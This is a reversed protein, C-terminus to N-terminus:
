ASVRNSRARPRRVTQHKERWTLVDERITPPKPHNHIGRHHIETKMREHYRIIVATASCRVWVLEELHTKCKRVPPRPTANKNKGSVPLRPRECFDCQPCKYVGFCIKEAIDVREETENDMDRGKKKLNCLSRYTSRQARLLGTHQSVKVDCDKKVIARYSQLPLLAWGTSKSRFDQDSPLLEITEVVNGNPFEHSSPHAYTDITNTDTVTADTSPGQGGQALAATAHIVKLMHEGEEDTDTENSSRENVDRDHDHSQKDGGIYDDELNQFDRPEDLTDLDMDFSSSSGSSATAKSMLQDMIRVVSTTVVVLLNRPRRKINNAALREDVIKIIEQRLSKALAKGVLGLLQQEDMMSFTRTNDEVVHTMKGTSFNYVVFKVKAFDKDNMGLRAQIRTKTDSFSEGEKVVLKFPISHLRSVDGTFHFCPIVAELETREYEEVPIEEVYLNIPDHIGSIPDNTGYEKVLKGNYVSFSRLKKTGNPSLKVKPLLNEIVAEITSVKLLLLEHPFEDKLTPGLWIVKVIRKSELEVISMDLKEYFVVNPPPAGQYMYGSTIMDQLLLNTSRRIPAGNLAVASTFQIHLPDVHLQEALKAAVQDYTSKKSLEISYTKLSSNEENKPKFEVIVRNFLYEYHQPISPHLGQNQLETVEKPTLEKQFVIIDGGQIECQHFTSKMKMPEIMTPKIEEFLKVSTISPLGKMELLQPVVESVKQQKQVHLKGVGELTSTYPDYYKFFVMMTGSQTENQFWSTKGNAAKTNKSSLEVYCRMEAQTRNGYRERILEMPTNLESDPIPVDSRFTDNQRKVLTWIRLQDEPYGYSKAIVSRFTALTEQKKVKIHKGPDVQPNYLDFGHHAKFEADSIVFANFFLTSEEREKRRTELVAREDDLRRLLHEPIDKTTLPRLIEEMDSERIYVLMYANTFRKHRNMQRMALSMSMNNELSADGGGYNEDLVEKLTVPTVRDDDFRFWKGNREPKLLAFYHGGHLDGSHVLVNFGNPGAKQKEESEEVFEALDIELPFEHRDNIKVMADREIDYEFRKLQLHLVPPLTQFIVGKRANQLGHGEAHYKNEGDLTEVDIYNAFSDRLTNCGKVNLQIDYFNEVRSSEYDVNICKIYSKMKGVFLKQIAGEAATGKMKGELNDQLVRNFEQVDHQMFSERSNWGFSRTLETTGVSSSSLALQYFVRQLALAVSKSPEDDETPIEFVAKRFYNTFFLSQLLSNMYCTAGQNKLGVFGTMTKSDYNNFNHWLVGTPDEYVRVVATIRTHGNEILPRGSPGHPTELRRLDHFRTFGWDAEETTFRHTAVHMTNVTPDDPNSM